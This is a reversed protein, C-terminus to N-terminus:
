TLKFLVFLVPEKKIYSLYEWGSEDLYYKNQRTFEKM